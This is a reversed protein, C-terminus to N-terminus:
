PRPCRVEPFAHFTKRALREGGDSAAMDRDDCQRLFAGGLYEFCFQFFPAKDADRDRAIVASDFRIGTTM